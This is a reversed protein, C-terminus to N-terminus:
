SLDVRPTWSRDYSFTLIFPRWRFPWAGVAGTNKVSHAWPRLLCSGKRPDM